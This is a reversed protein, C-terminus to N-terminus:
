SDSALGERAVKALLAARSRVDFAKFIEKIHNSVTYESRGLSRAIEATSKGQCLIEFVARQMPSLMPRPREVTGRLENALWSQQYHRLKDEIAPLLDRDGTARYESVLCQAVRFDYGYREFIARSERLETLGRARNGLALEVVATSYQEYARTRPDRGYLGPASFEGLGRYQALYMSSRAADIESFLEALWLLGFREWALTGHWDVGAALQEAEDLEVRSWGRQGFCRALFSRDCAAVVKDALTPATESARKMLRFANFYDGQLAKSWALDELTNFLSDANDRPWVIGGLQREVEAVAGPVYLDRALDALAQTLRARLHTLEHVEPDFLRLLEILREAEHFVRGEYQLVFVEASLAWIRSERSRGKNALELAARASEVKEEMHYCFVFYFGVLAILDDDAVLTATKLASHLREHASEFDKTIAYAQALWADRKVQDRPRDAPISLGLLMGLTVAPDDYRHARAAKMVLEPPESGGAYRAYIEAADRFRSEEYAREFENRWSAAAPAKKPPSSM